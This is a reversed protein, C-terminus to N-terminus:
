RMRREEGTVVHVGINWSFKLISLVSRLCSTGGSVLAGPAELHPVMLAHFNRFEQAEKRQREIELREEEIKNGQLIGEEHCCPCYIFTQFYENKNCDLCQEGSIAELCQGIHPTISTHFCLFYLWTYTCM